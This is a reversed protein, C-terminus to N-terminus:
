RYVPNVNRTTRVPYRNNELDKQSAAEKNPHKSRISTEMKSSGIEQRADKIIKIQNYNRQIRRNLKRSYLIYTWENIVEEIVFPGIYKNEFGTAKENKIMAVDGVKAKTNWRNRNYREEDSVNQNEINNRVIKHINIINRKFERVYEELNREYNGITDLTSIEIRPKRGFVIEYPSLKTTKQVTSRIGFEVTPLAENWESTQRDQMLASIMPKVTRFLREILGDSQPYYPSTFTKKIGLLKCFELFLNSTFNTGRDSHIREPIGFKSIWHIWVNKAIKIATIEKMPILCIYKSFYDIIGLIFKYGNRTKKFPGSIDIGIIQFPETTKINQLPAPIRGNQYKSHLCPKCQSLLERIERMMGPWYYDRSIAESTKETGPHGLIRHHKWILKKRKHDPVILRYHGNEHLYLIGGRFRIDNDKRGYRKREEINITKELLVRLEPDKRQQWEDAMEHKEITSVKLKNVIKESYKSSSDDQKISPIYNKTNRKKQPNMHQLMCQECPAPRSLADANIHEKGKRYEVVMDFVELEAKWICYQSTYPSNWNLLWKLAQHDTRVLFRSGILYHKFKLVFVYIALLEKRTICYRRQSKTLTKSAYCLVREEGNQLQSLVAGISNHSADTDLIYQGDAIPLALIPPTILCDKLKYFMAKSQETWRFKNENKLMPTLPESFVAYDKIFRRYYNCFGLFTQLEKKCGPLQWKKISEIKDPDTKYRGKDCCAGSITSRETFIQM